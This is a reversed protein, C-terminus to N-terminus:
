GTSRIVSLAVAVKRELRELIELRRADPMGPYGAVAREIDAMREVQGVTLGTAIFGRECMPCSIGDCIPCKEYLKMDKGTLWDITGDPAPPLTKGDRKDKKRRLVEAFRRLEDRDSEPLDQEEMRREMPLSANDPIWTM